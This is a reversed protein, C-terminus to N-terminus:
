RHMTAADQSSIMKTAGRALSPRACARWVSLM